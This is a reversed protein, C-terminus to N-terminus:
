PVIRSTAADAARRPPGALVAGTLPPLHLRGDDLRPGDDTALALTWGATPDLDLPCEGDGNNLAVLAATAGDDCRWAYLGADDDLAVVERPARWLGPHARRLRGLAVYFALLSPDEGEGWPMPLRSEEPHGSGDAYRVDRRQSLGLETGYYVIPPGPLAYQCLAALRLRRADGGVVWLFRNM